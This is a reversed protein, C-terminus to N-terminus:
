SGSAMRRISPTAYGPRRPGGLPREAGDSVRFRLSTQDESATLVERGDASFVASTM